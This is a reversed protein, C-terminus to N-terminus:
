GPAYCSFKRLPLTMRGSKEGEHFTKEWYSIEMKTSRFCFPGRRMKKVKGGEMKLKRGERKCNINKEECNVGRKGKKGQRKKGPLDASFERDSTEPPANHGGAEGGGAQLAVSM